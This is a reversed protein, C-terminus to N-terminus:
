READSSRGKSHVLSYIESKHKIKWLAWVSKAWVLVAETHKESSTEQIVDAVTRTGTFDPPDLWKLDSNSEIFQKLKERAADGTLGMELVYFLSVLHGWVSQTSKRSPSGPHQVAYTDVTLRHIDSLESYYEYEKRLIMGYTQWCGPSSEIYSHTPGNCKQFIGKCWPCTEM